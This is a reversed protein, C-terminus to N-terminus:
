CVFQQLMAHDSNMLRIRALGFCLSLTIAGQNIIVIHSVFPRLFILWYSLHPSSIIAEVLLLSLSPSLIPPATLYLSVLGRAGDRAQGNQLEQQRMERERKQCQYPEKM